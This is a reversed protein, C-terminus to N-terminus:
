NGYIQKKNYYMYSDLEDMLKTIDSILKNLNELSHVCYRITSMPHLGNLEQDIAVIQTDCEKIKDSLRKAISFATNKETINKFEHNCSVMKLYHNDWKTRLKELTNLIEKYM